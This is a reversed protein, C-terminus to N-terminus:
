HRARQGREIVPQDGGFRRPLILVGLGLGPRCPFSASRLPLGWRSDPKHCVGLAVSRGTRAPWRCRAVGCAPGPLLGPGGATRARLRLPLQAEAQLPGRGRPRAAEQEAQLTLEAGAWLSKGPVTGMWGYLPSYLSSWSSGEGKPSRLPPSWTKNWSRVESWSRGESLATSVLRPKNSSDDGDDNGDASQSDGGALQRPGQTTIRPPPSGQSSAGRYGM